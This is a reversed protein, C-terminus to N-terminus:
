RCRNNEIVQTTGVFYFSIATGATNKVNFCSKSGSSYQNGFEVTTTATTSTASVTFLSSPSSTGIGVSAGTLALSLNRLVGTGAKDTDLVAVNNLWYTRFREYNTGQDVTNFLTLSNATSGLTIGSQTSKIVYADNRGLSPSSSATPLAYTDTYQSTTTATYYINQSAPYVGRYVRYGLAGSIPTWTVIVSGTPGTTTISSESSAKTEGGSGDLATVVYYYTSTSLNGGVTSSALTLSGVPSLNIGMATTATSTAPGYLGYGNGFFTQSWNSNQSETRAASVFFVPVFLMVASIVSVIIKQITNEM